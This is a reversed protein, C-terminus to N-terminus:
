DSDLLRGDIKYYSTVTSKTYDRSPTTPEYYYSSQSQQSPDNQPSASLPTKEGSLFEIDSRRKNRVVAGFTLLFGIAIISLIVV